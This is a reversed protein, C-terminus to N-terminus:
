GGTDDEFCDISEPDIGSARVREVYAPDDMRSCDVVDIPEPPPEETAPEETAPKALEADAEKPPEPAPLPEPSPAMEPEPTGPEPTAGGCAATSFAISLTCLAAIHKRM